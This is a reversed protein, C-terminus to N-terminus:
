RGYNRDKGAIVNKLICKTNKDEKLRYKKKRVRDTWGDMEKWRWCRMESSEMYKGFQGSVLSHKLHVSKSTEGKFTLGIQKHLFATQWHLGPNLELHVDQKM